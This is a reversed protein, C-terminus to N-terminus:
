LLEGTEHTQAGITFTLHLKMCREPKRIANARSSHEFVDTPITESLKSSEEIHLAVYICPM